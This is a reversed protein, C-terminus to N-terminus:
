LGSGAEIGKWVRSKPFSRIAKNENM